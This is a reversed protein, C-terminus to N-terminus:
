EIVQDARLLLSPPIALGLAKATKLNIVLEFKTPQEVPLDGPRAGKLIKDVFVAARRWNFDSATPGYALLGGAAAFGPNYYIAPLKSHLALKALRAQVVTIGPSAMLVLGDAGGARAAAVIAELRLDPRLELLKVELGVARAAEQANAVQKHTGSADWIVALRSLAPVAEKLLQVLKGALEATQFSLGTINGGPRALNTVFGHGDVDDMRGMVIPVSATADRAAGIGQPGSAVIVDVKRRVLEAALAPLRDLRGQASVVDLLITQGEAHGLARLGERLDELNEPGPANLLVGVRPIKAAPQAWVATPSALLSASAAHLFRRRSMMADGIINWTAM